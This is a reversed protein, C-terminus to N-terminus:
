GTHLLPLLVRQRIVDPPPTRWPFHALWLLRTCACIYKRFGFQGESNVMLLTQASTGTLIETMRTQM